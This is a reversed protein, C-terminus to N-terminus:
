KSVFRDLQLSSSGIVYFLEALEVNYVMIKAIQGLNAVERGSIERVAVSVVILLLIMRLISYLLSSCSQRHVKPEIKCIKPDFITYYKM